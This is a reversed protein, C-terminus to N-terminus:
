TMPEGTLDHGDLLILDFVIYSVPVLAARRRADAPNTVHMRQQMQGFTPMGTEDFAILEGDLIANEVGLAAPLEQLEPFTVTVDALRSSQLRIRDGEVFAIARMGDWKIEFGWGDEDAPLDGLVAKMPQLRAPLAM